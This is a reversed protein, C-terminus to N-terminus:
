VHARGIKMFVMIFAATLVLWRYSNQGQEADTMCGGPDGLRVGWTERHSDVHRIHGDNQREQRRGSGEEGPAQGWPFPRRAM